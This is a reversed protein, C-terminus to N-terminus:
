LSKHKFPSDIITWGFKVKKLIGTKKKKNKKKNKKQKKTKNQKTKNQKKNKQMHPTRGSQAPGPHGTPPVPLPIKLAFEQILTYEM